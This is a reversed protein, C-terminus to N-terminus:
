AGRGVARIDVACVGEGAPRVMLPNIELDALVHRHNLYFDGLAVVASILADKDAVPAGRFGDLLAASKLEGLMSRADDTTIPLLRIAVDRMLEVMVGGAGLIIMPGYLADDRAGVLMETGGVMEQALFGDIRAASDHAVLRAQMTEAAAVAGAADTINLTM